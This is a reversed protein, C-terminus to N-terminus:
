KESEELAQGSLYGLAGVAALDALDREPITEKWKQYAKLQEITKELNRAKKPTDAKPMEKILNRFKPSSLLEDAAVSRKVKRASLMHGLVGATGAGPMGIVTSVGEAAAIKKGTGYLRSAINEVEDFMGPVALTRGTTIAEAQARRVGGVLKHFSELRKMNAKGLEKELRNYAGRNRKIGNMFDDFGPINLSKEKRSGITFADNLASAVINQRTEKGVQKPINELLADFRSTNGKMMPLLATKAKNMINDQLKKGLSGTLQNEIAKREVVLNKATKYLDGIGAADAVAEQDKTLRNYLRSLTRHDSNKFVSEKGRMADGIQRRYKDLRAYTPNTEPDLTKLLMKENKDLYEIGGLDDAIQNLESIINDTKVPTNPAINESVTKYAEEARDGLDDILKQSDTRFRDSLESKDIQGGFEEILEDAKQGLQEILRKEQISLQSAPISKLGQEVSRFVPNESAHSALIEKDVGFERAAEIIEPNLDASEVLQEMKGGVGVRAGATSKIQEVQQQAAKATDLKEPLVDAIDDMKLGSDKIAEEVDRKLFGDADYFQHLTKKNVTQKLALKKAARTGKLGILEMALAPATMVAAGAAPGAKEAAYDALEKYKAVPKEVIPQVAEGIAQATRQASETKPKYTGIEQVAEIVKGAKEAGVFPAAALGALGSIPEAIAGSVGSLGLEGVGVLFDLLGPEEQYALGQAEPEPQPQEQAGATGVLKLRSQGTPQPQQSETEEVTGILKLPM